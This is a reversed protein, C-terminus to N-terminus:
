YDTTTVNDNARPISDIADTVANGLLLLGMFGVPPCIISSIVIIGSGLLANSKASDLQSRRYTRKQSPTRTIPTFSLTYRGGSRTGRNYSMIHFKYLVGFPLTSPLCGTHTVLFSDPSVPLV